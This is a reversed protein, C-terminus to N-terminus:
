NQTLVALMRLINTKNEGDGMMDPNALAYLYGDISSGDIDARFDILNAWQEIDDADIEDALYKELVMILHQHNVEFPTENPEIDANVYVSFASDRQSGFTLIQHLAQQKNM